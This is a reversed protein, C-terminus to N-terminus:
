LPQSAWHYQLMVALSGPVTGVNMGPDLGYANRLHLFTEMAIATTSKSIVNGNDSLQAGPHFSGLLRGQRRSGTTRKTCENTCQEVTMGHMSKLGNKLFCVGKNIETHMDIYYGICSTVQNKSDQGPSLTPHFSQGHM